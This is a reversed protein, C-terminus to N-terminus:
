AVEEAVEFRYKKGYKAVPGHEYWIEMTRSYEIVHDVRGMRHRRKREARYLIMGPEVDWAEITGTIREM